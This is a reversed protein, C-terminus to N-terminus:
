DDHNCARNLELNDILRTTGCHVAALIRLARDKERPPKLDGSHRIAVYEPTLGHARLREEAQQEVRSLDVGPAAGLKASEQLVAFLNQAAAQQQSDLYNNRSSMALGSSERVTAVGHIHIDFGMDEVMSRIILLQQYDKEGFVAVDPNVLCFLRSVVTVVGDFHGPRSKGELISTLGPPAALRFTDELGYPYVTEEDPAFLLDCGTQRLAARDSDPTRPYSDLDEGAGFQTPNVYISAIVRDALRGAETVLALHGAHLNGMTPVLAIKQGEHRWAQLVDRLEQRGAVELM